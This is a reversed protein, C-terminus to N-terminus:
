EFQFTFAGPLHIHFVVEIDLEGASWVVAVVVKHIHVFFRYEVPDSTVTQGDATKDGDTFFSGLPRTIAGVDISVPRDFRVVLKGADIRAQFPVPESPSLLIRGVEGATFARVGMTVPEAALAPWALVATLLAPISRRM